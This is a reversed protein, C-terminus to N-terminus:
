RNTEEETSVLECQRRFQLVCITRLQRNTTPSLNNLCYFRLSHFCKVSSSWRNLWGQLRRCGPWILGAYCAASWSFKRKARGVIFHLQEVTPRFKDFLPLIRKVLESRTTIWAETKSSSNSSCLLIKCSCLASLTVTITTPFPNQSM